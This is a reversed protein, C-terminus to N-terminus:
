ALRAALGERVSPWEADLVSYIASDRYGDEEGLVQSPQWKRLVGEFRAGLREIAARSRENRADTKLDVRVVGWHEFAHTLLLLKAETNVATRQASAALWTGGIEVAFPVDYGPRTRITLYRTAGVVRGTAADVQAFPAVLGSEWDALLAAVYSAMPGEGDPVLSLNYTSRDESAAAALANVHSMSLPELRAHAGALTPIVLPTTV